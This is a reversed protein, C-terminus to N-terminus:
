LTSLASTPPSEPGRFEGNLTFGPGTTSSLVVEHVEKMVRDSIDACDKKVQEMLARINRQMEEPTFGIQGIPLRIVGTRERYESGGIMDKVASGVDKVVTGLKASPMMGRPGLIRGVQASNLARVSDEHCICRDFEIRGEKIAQFITDEGVTVAGAAAATRAHKSDPPCIVCIRTGSHVPHPLRLRNRIVPGNKLTRMRISLEYKSTPYGVEFARIYRMADCLSFQIASKLDPLDFTTRTKKKQKARLNPDSRRYKAANASAVATRIQQHVYSSRPGRSPLLSSMAGFPPKATAM